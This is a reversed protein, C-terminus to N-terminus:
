NGFLNFLRKVRGIDFDRERMAFNVEKFAILLFAQTALGDM